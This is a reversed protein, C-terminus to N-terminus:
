DSARAARGQAIARSLTVPAPPAKLVRRALDAVPAAMLLLGALYVPWNFVAPLAMRVAPVGGPLAAIADAMFAYLALAVGALCLAWAVRGPWLPRGPSDFWVVLSGGVIMLLAIGVPAIVPGWWPLPLLFLLDWAFLSGPWGVMVRLFVYYFVDWVGFALVAYAWRRRRNGGALWGAALLMILTAAERAMEIQAFDAVGPAGPLPNFQYPEIRDILTRLYVVVASEVWAMATAFAVVWGWRQTNTM